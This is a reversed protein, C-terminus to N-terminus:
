HRDFLFELGVIYSQNPIETCHRVVARGHFSMEPEHVGVGVEQGQVLEEDTRIGIGQTSLNISSALAHRELGGEDALWLEVTSPFAWRLARRRGNTSAGSARVQRDALLKGVAEQTLACIEAANM